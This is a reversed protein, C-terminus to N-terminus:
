AFQTPRPKGPKRHKKQISTGISDIEGSPANTTTLWINAKAISANSPTLVLCAKHLKL